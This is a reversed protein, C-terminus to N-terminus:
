NEEQFVGEQDAAADAMQLWTRDEAIVTGDSRQYINKYFPASAGQSDSVRGELRISSYRGDPERVVKHQVVRDISISRNIQGTCM